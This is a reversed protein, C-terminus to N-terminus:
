QEGKADDRPRECAPCSKPDLTGGIWVPVSSTDGKKYWVSRWDGPVYEAHCSFCVVTNKYRPAPPRNVRPTAMGM